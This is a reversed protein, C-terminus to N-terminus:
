GKNKTRQCISVWSYHRNNTLLEFLQFKCTKSLPQVDTSDSADVLVDAVAMFIRLVICWFQLVCVCVCVCVMVYHKSRMKQSVKWTIDKIKHKISRADSCIKTFLALETCLKNKIYKDIEVHKPRSHACRWSFCSHKHSVQYKKHQTSSCISRCVLCVCVCMYLCWQWRTVVWYCYIFIIIIFKLTIEVSHLATHQTYLFLRM